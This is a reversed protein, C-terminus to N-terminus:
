ALFNAIVRIVHEVQVDDLFQHCPLTIIRSAQLDATSLADSNLKLARSAAQRHLPIPYHVKAEVGARILEGLLNDRDVVQIMYLCFTELDGKIRPVVQVRPALTSFAEDYRSAIKNRKMIVDDLKELEISAVIAQLPQIRANVGYFEIENRNIMGHNRYKRLWSAYEVNNTSIAGGDGMVNLSKLPHMSYAAIDGWNAATRGSYKGGIAMCADSVVKLKHIKAIQEIRAMNPAGGAWFVPLIARTQQTIKAEILEVDIQMRCDVDVFVPKAGCAVIAGTTAYFSNPATIVEDGSKIGVAKLALILADTGTNTSVCYTTEMYDAFKEEFDTVYPGLTFEGTSTLEEWKAFIDKRGGFQIPLYNYPVLFKM